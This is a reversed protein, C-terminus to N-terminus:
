QILDLITYSFVENLISKSKPKKSHGLMSPGSKGKESLCIRGTLMTKTKKNISKQLHNMLFAIGKPFSNTLFASISLSRVNKASM